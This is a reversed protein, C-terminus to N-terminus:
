SKVLAVSGVLFKVYSLVAKFGDHLSYGSVNGTLTSPDIKDHDITAVLQYSHPATDSESTDLTIM